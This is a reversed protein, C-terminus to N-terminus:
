EIYTLLEEQKRWDPAWKIIEENFHSTWKDYSRLYSKIIIASPCIMQFMKNIPNTKGKKPLQLATKINTYYLTKFRKYAQSIFM